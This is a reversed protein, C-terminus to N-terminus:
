SRVSMSPQCWETHDSFFEASEMVVLPYLLQAQTPTIWPTPTTYHHGAM